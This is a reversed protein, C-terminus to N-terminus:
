SADEVEVSPSAGSLSLAFAELEEVSILVRRRIRVSPLQGSAVLRDVTRASVGLAAQADRKGVFLPRSFAVAPAPPSTV